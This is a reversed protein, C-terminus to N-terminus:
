PHANLVPTGGQARQHGRDLEAVVELLTDALRKIIPSTIVFPPALLLHDGRDGDACGEVPYAVIGKDFLDQAIRPAINADRPFPARTERDHVFEIAMLLGMGRIDGVVSFQSLPSLAERLERGLPEVRQFLRQKAAYDLVALGAAASVPHANYTFGHLFAGSGQAIAEGVHGAVLVAGLAAYGGAIGKGCLIMDPTVGWHQIAFNKGTRGIGTMVEDAILLIGHRRCIEWIRQVYGEPPAVAGLTAGSLPEFIFGAVTSPDERQLFRELDDACDLNCEPYKLGLPCRYCYCPVIQGWNSLMPAFPERRRPNGSVALAGLTAGHYSQQRSIIRTRRPQGSELYFQRCLKIATETAESGGSTFYVRGSAAFSPPAMELLKLALQEAPANSFQSSHVYALQQAQAAMAQGIAEVGHGITVVAAGGAADLYQKGESTFLFCGEGRMARPYDKRFSRPFLVQDLRNDIM